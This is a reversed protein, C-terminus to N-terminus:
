FNVDWEVPLTINCCTRLLTVHPLQFWLPSQAEICFRSVVLGSLVEDGTWIILIVYFRIEQHILYHVGSIYGASGHFGPVRGGPSVSTIPLLYKNCSPGLKDTLILCISFPLFSIYKTWTPCIM